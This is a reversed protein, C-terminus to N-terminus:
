ESGAFFIFADSDAFKYIITVTPLNRVENGNAEKAVGTRGTEARSWGGLGTPVVEHWEWSGPSDPSPGTVHGYIGQTPSLTPTPAEAQRLRRFIADLIRV